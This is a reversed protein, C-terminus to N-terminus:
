SPFIEKVGYMEMVVEDIRQEISSVRSQYYTRDKETKASALRKRVDLMQRVLDEIQARLTNAHKDDKDPVVIPLQSVYMPKYEYYGGQRTASISHMFFDLVKSNLLGLLYLDTTPIIATKDNSYFSQDDYAYSAKQVIAPIIIKPREFEEYYDVTDQLEYWKYSGPKRGEWNTGTFNKPKPMLRSKFQKLHREIAPYDKINIGRRTFILWKNSKLPEYRKIDRGALFPKILEASRPDEAILQARVADDIVFAENLGTKIGYYIKGKVYESLPIGAARIKELLAQTHEDSLSWGEDSLTSQRVTYALRRREEHLDEFNLTDIKVAEFSDAPEDKSIFLLCPYTTVGPFVPLDGFDTIEEIHQQKLWAACRAGYNARLWKNAVIYGFRGKPRLLTVAREIFYAYLDAVGHYVKYHTKYYGKQVPGLTEQRVYPPNGLVVDFGGNKMAEPFALRYDLPYLDREEDGNFLNGDLIDSEILSNGPIINKSLDPLIKEHFLTQMENATATSEDELLKLYLSLQTVEVAQADKDVGFVSNRLINQKLRLSLVWRGDLEHCGDKKAKDPHANYWETHYRLLTDFVTILFSGSGCAIDAFRMGAIQAPTRDKIVEGVTRDVIYRVIFEPTYYVGGAKRVEPKEEVKAQKATARIVKGLFREYISGLIHIPIANFDYPSEARSFRALVAAFEAEDPGKCAPVDISHARFVVGNYKANLRRSTDLFEEWVGKKKGLSGIELDPEILKDELFRMFVIRDICRQVAETLLEGDWDENRKKFAKALILRMDDLEALFAADIERTDELALRQQKGAGAKPRPLADVFRSIADGEVAERGFLYYLEAFADKDAYQSYHFQKVLRGSITSIDPKFRADLIHFEEFDTLVAIPTKASSAYRVAQFYDDANKLNRSPKKAEVFFVPNRYDPALYFAYDARRQTRVDPKKEIKVEQKYPDKQTEHMVDWGLATFFRDIFDRRAEQEQYAPSLYYKEGAQFTSVLEAVSAFASEFM